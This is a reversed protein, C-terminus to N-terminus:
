VHLLYLLLHLSRLPTLITLRYGALLHRAHYGSDAQEIHKAEKKQHTNLGSREEEKGRVFQCPNNLQKVAPAFFVAFANTLVTASGGSFFLHSNRSRPHITSFNSRLLSLPTLLLIWYGRLNPCGNGCGTERQAGRGQLGPFAM